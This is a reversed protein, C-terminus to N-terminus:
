YKIYGDCAAILTAIRRPMSDLRTQIDTQPLFNWIAQIRLLLEYKSAAPCPSHALRRVVWDWVHEIPSMDKRLGSGTKRTTRHEDTWQKWVRM